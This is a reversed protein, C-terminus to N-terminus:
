GTGVAERPSNTSQYVGELTLATVRMAPTAAPLVSV